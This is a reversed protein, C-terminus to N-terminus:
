TASGDASGGDPRVCSRGEVKVGKVEGAVTRARDVDADVVAVARAGRATAERALGAGIGAGAGTIVVIKDAVDM